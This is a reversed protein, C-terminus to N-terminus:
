SSTLWWEGQYDRDDSLWLADIARLVHVDFASLIRGTLQSWAFIEAYSLTAPVVIGDPGPLFGRTENLECFYAWVNCFALPLEPGELKKRAKENRHAAAKLHVRM